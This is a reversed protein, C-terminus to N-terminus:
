ALLWVWPEVLFSKVTKPLAPPSLGDTLPVAFVQDLIRYHLQEFIGLHPKLARTGAACLIAQGLVAVFLEDVPEVHRPFSGLPLRM